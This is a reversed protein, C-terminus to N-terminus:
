GGVATHAKEYGLVQGTELAEINGLGAPTLGCFTLGVFLDAHASLNEKVLTLRNELRSTELVVPLASDQNWVWLGM